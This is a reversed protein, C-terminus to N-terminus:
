KWEKCAKEKSNIYELIDELLSKISEAKYTVFKYDFEDINNILLKIRSKINKEKDTM